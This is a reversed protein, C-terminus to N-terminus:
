NFRDWIEHSPSELLALVSQRGSLIPLVEHDPMTGRPDVKRGLKGALPHPQGKKAGEKYRAPHVAWENHGTLWEDIRDNAWWTHGQLQHWRALIATDYVIAQFQEQTVVANTNPDAKQGDGATVCLGYFAANASRVHITKRCDGAHYAAHDFPALKIRRAHDTYARNYSLTFAPSRFWNEAGKDTKSADYHWMAGRREFAPVFAGYNDRDLEILIDDPPLLTDIGKM